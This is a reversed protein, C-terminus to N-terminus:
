GKVKEFSRGAGKALALLGEKYADWFRRSAVGDMRAILENDFDAWDHLSHLECGIKMHQDFIVVHYTLGSVQLPIKEITITESIKAGYLDAGYLDAGDLDVGRLDVGRLDAGRLNAERLDAGRLSAGRLDVGRLDVGYLNAGYLDAGYLNAGRLSAGNAIAWQVALGRKFSLAASEECNIEASVQVSGTYRNLIEFKM